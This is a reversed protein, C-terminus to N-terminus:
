KRGRRKVKNKRKKRIRRKDVVKDDQSKVDVAKPEPRPPAAYLALAQQGASALNACAWLLGLGTDVSVGHYYMAYFACFAAVAAQAFRALVKGWELLDKPRISRPVSFNNISPTTNSMTYQESPRVEVAENRAGRRMGSTGPRAASRTRRINRM